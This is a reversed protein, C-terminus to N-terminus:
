ETTKDAIFDAFLQKAYEDILKPVEEEFYYHIAGQVLQDIRETTKKDKAWENYLKMYSVNGSALEIVGPNEKPVGAVTEFEIDNEYHHGEYGDIMLEVPREITGMLKGYKSNNYSQIEEDTWDAYNTKDEWQGDEYIRIDIRPTDYCMVVNEDNFDFAYLYRKDNKTFDHDSM